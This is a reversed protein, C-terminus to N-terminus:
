CILREQLGVFRWGRMRSAVVIDVDSRLKAAGKAYAGFLFTKRVGYKEFVPKLREAIKVVSYPRAEM